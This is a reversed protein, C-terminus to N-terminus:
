GPGIVDRGLTDPAVAQDPVQGRSGLERPHGGGSRSEDSEIAGVFPLGCLVVLSLIAVVPMVIYILTGQM